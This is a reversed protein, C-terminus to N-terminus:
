PANSQADLCRYAHEEVYLPCGGGCLDLDPCGDCKEPLWERNRLYLALEHNWISDWDDTLFNGLSKYYSQCPIVDGNPEICMNYKAATCTKIGLEMSIPDMECYQTPTYWILRMENRAAAAKVREMIGALEAETFGTGVVKGGGSYIMGNCAFTKIGLEALFDITDEIIAVNDKTLTTNTMVYVDAAVANVIGAVTEAWAADCGVMKNHIAEDHSELTIQIHDLGADLLSQLYVRDALKRGNTLLGTVLGVGEAHAILEALDPRLTAEGGTFVAHPIGLDWLQDIVRKWAETPMEPFNRERAVYCHPCDDNCRYTLALDMRYPASVPTQFPDIREVDLYTVPCVEDTRALMFITERLSEYDERAQEKSVKYRRTIERVAADTSKEQLILRAHETATENLHLVKSANVVLIGQGNEEVRLHIRFREEQGLPSRYHYIGKQLPTDPALWQRITDLIGM